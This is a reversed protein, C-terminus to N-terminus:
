KKGEVAADIRDVSQQLARNVDKEVKELIERSYASTSTKKNKDEVAKGVKQQDCGQLQITLFLLTSIVSLKKFNSM